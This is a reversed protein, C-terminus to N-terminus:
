AGAGSGGCRPGATGFQPLNLSLTRGFTFELSDEEEQAPAAEKAKASTAGRTGTPLPPPLASAAAPASGERAAPEQQAGALEEQGDAAEQPEAAGPGPSADSAVSRGDGEPKTDAQGPAGEEVRSSAAAPPEEGGAPAATLRRAAQVPSRARPREAVAGDVAPRPLDRSRARTPTLSRPTCTSRASLFSRASRASGPSMPAPAMEDPRRANLGLPLQRLAAETLGLSNQEPESPRGNSGGVASAGMLLCRHLVQQRVQLESQWEDVPNEWVSVQLAANHYYTGTESTYPGSWGDLQAMARQHAAELHAQVASARRAESAVPREARLDRVLQIVERFVSDMPHSWSSEQTVQNYFYVRGDEDYYESWSPPLAAVFAEQVVWVLDQDSDLDVGLTKGYERLDADSDTGTAAGGGWAGADPSWHPPQEDDSTIGVDSESASPQAMGRSLAALV